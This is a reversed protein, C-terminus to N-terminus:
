RKRDDEWGGGIRQSSRVSCRTDSPSRAHALKEVELAILYNLEPWSVHAGNKRVLVKEYEFALYELAPARAAEASQEFRSVFGNPAMASIEYSM